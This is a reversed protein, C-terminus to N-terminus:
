LRVLPFFAKLTTAQQILKYSVHSNPLQELKKDMNALGRLKIKQVQEGKYKHAFFTFKKINM